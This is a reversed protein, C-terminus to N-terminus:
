KTDKEKILIMMEKKMDKAAKYFKDAPVKSDGTLTVDGLVLVHAQIRMVYREIRDVREEITLKKM